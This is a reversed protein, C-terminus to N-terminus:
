LWQSVEYLVNLLASVPPLQAEAQLMHEQSPPVQRQNESQIQFVEVMVEELIIDLSFDDVEQFTTSLM